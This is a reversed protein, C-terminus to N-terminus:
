SPVGLVPEAQSGCRCPWLSCCLGPNGHVDQFQPMLTPWPETPSRWPPLLMPQSQEGRLAEPDGLIRNLTEAPIKEFAENTPALLTYQGDGELLTNLGSAAVAAQTPFPPFTGLGVQCSACM